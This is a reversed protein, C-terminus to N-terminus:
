KEGNKDAQKRYYYALQRCNRGCLIRMGVPRRNKARFEKGCHECILHYDERRGTHKQRKTATGKAKEYFDLQEMYTRASDYLWASEDTENLEAVPREPLAVKLKEVREGL